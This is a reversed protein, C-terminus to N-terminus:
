VQESKLKIENSYKHPLHHIVLCSFGKYATFYKCIVWFMLMVMSSQMAVQEEMSPLIQIMQLDKVQMQPEPDADLNIDPKVQNKVAFSDTWHLSQNQHTNSPYRAQVVLDINETVLRDFFFFQM